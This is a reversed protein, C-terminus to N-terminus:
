GKSELAVRARAGHFYSHIWPHESALIEDLTGTQLKKDVLVAIRDCSNFLTDLDHTIMFVTFQLNDRLYIVLEDFETASIPDLGSTPEDLFLLPPDLALARALAARKVMGGSLESPYKRGAGIPLGVMRLKLNALDRRCTDTLNTYEKMPLQINDLVTLSSFLAGGQFLVGWRKQIDLMQDRNMDTIDQGHIRISGAYPHNLGLITRLLVSKGSGSGGVVGLIEGSQLDLDLDEHVVQDGFRNILGRIEIVPSNSM